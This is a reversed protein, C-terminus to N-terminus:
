IFKLMMEKFESLDIQGDGDKDAMQILEQWTVDEQDESEGLVGRLEEATITGNGDIDFAKFASELNESALLIDRRTTATLFESYDIYGNNDM